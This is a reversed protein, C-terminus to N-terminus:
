GMNMAPGDWETPTTSVVGETHNDIFHAMRDAQQSTLSGFQVGRRRVIFPTIPLANEIVVDSINIIPIHELHFARDETFIELEIEGNPRGLDAIYKLALGGRSIDLIQGLKIRHNKLVAFAGKKARFRKQKRREVPLGGQM